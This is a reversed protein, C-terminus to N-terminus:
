DDDEIGLFYCRIWKVAPGSDVGVARAVDDSFDETAAHGHRKLTVPRQSDIKHYVM